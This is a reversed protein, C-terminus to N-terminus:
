SIDRETRRGGDLAHTGAGEEGIINVVHASKLVLPKHPQHEQGGQRPWKSLVPSLSTVLRLIEFLLSPGSLALIMAPAM